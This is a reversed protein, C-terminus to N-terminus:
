TEEITSSLKLKLPHAPKLSTVFPQTRVFEVRSLPIRATVIYKGDQGKGIVAGERVESLKVWKDLDEVKAMVSIEGDETSASAKPVYGKTLRNMHRQLRPDINSYINTKKLKM